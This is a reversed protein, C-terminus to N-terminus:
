NIKVFPIGPAPEGAVTDVKVSAGGAQSAGQSSHLEVAAFWGEGAAWGDAWLSLDRSGM